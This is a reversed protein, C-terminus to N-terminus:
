KQKKHRQPDVTLEERWGLVLLIILLGAMPLYFLPHLLLFSPTFAWTSLCSQQVGFFGSCRVGLLDQVVGIAIFTLAVMCLAVAIGAVLNLKKNHAKGILISSLTFLLGATTVIITGAIAPSDYVGFSLGGAIMHPTTFLILAVTAAISARWALKQVPLQM